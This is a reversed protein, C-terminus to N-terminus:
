DSLDRRSATRAAARTFHTRAARSAADADRRRIAEVIERHEQVVEPQMEAVRVNNMAALRLKMRVRADILQLFNVFFTNGSAQAVTLYFQAEADFWAEVSEPTRPARSAAELCALYRDLAALQDDTHLRAALAAADAEVSTRLQLIQLLEMRKDFCEPSIRFSTLQAPSGVYAGSGKRSEVLGDRKLRSIAERVASRSVGFETALQAEPPLKDGVAFEGSEIKKQISEAITDPLARPRDLEVFVRPATTM